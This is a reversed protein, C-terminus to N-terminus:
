KKKIKNKAAFTVQSRTVLQQIVKVALNNKSKKVSGSSSILQNLTIIIEQRGVDVIDKM